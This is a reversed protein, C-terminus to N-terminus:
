IKSSSSLHVHKFAFYQSNGLYYFVMTAKMYTSSHIKFLKNTNKKNKNRVMGGGDWKSGNGNAQRRGRETTLNATCDNGFARPM